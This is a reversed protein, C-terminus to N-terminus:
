IMVHIEQKRQEIYKKKLIKMAYVKSDDDKRKVLVVKAYSGKGIVSLTNFHDLTVHKDM